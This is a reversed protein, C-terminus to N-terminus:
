LRLDDTSNKLKKGTILLSMSKQKKKTLEKLTRDKFALKPKLNLSDDM